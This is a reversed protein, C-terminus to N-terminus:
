IFHIIKECMEEIQKQAHFCPFTSIFKGYSPIVQTFLPLPTHSSIVKIKIENLDVTIIRM